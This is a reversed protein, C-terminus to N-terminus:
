GTARATMVPLAGPHVRLTLTRADPPEHLEGDLQFFLPAAGMAEIEVERAQYMKVKPHGEHKGRMVRALPVLAGLYSVEDVMCIDFRGDDPEAQPCVWFGGGVCRGNGAVIITVKQEIIRDDLRIRLPIAKYRILSKLVAGLYKIIAPSPRGQARVIRRVVDVDLGTRAANVFWHRNEGWEATCADLRRLQGDVLIDLSREIDKLPGILKAFDNGTGVPLVGLVPGDVGQSYAKLLGNAVEHVTGDGGAAIVLDVRSRAAELGLRSAERPGTTAIIDADIGRRELGIIIREAM